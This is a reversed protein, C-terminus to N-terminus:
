TSVEADSSSGTSERKAEPEVPKKPVRVRPIKQYTQYGALCHWRSPGGEAGVTPQVRVIRLEGVGLFFGTPVCLEFRLQAEPQSARFEKCFELWNLGIWRELPPISDSGVIPSDGADLTV